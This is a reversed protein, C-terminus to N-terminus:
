IMIAFYKDIAGVFYDKKFYEAEEKKELFFQVDSLLRPFNIRDIRGLLLEKTQPGDLDFNKGETQAAANSLLKYNIPTKRTLFWLLDYYDRGKDYKRFLVAHLKSAFLSDPKYCNVKFLFNKNVLVVETQYGRPPNSDIELKIFLKESKLQSLGLEYLLGKFRIFESLVTKDKAKAEEVSYGTLELEKKATKLLASFDFGKKNILSFDLDESFRPMDYLIRLATGGVFAFNKFYGKRDLIQLILEQLYERTFNYKEENSGLGELKKLLIEKM